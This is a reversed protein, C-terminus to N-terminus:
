ALVLNGAARGSGGTGPSSPEDSVSLVHGSDGWTTDFAVARFSDDDRLSSWDVNLEVVCRDVDVRVVTADAEVGDDPEFVIVREGAVPTPGVYKAPTRGAGNRRNLDIQVKRMRFIM